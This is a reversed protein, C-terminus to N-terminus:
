ARWRGVPGPPAIAVHQLEHVYRLATRRTRETMGRSGVMGVLRAAKRQGNRNRRQRPRARGPRTAQPPGGRNGAVARRAGSLRPAVRHTVGVCRDSQQYPWMDVLRGHAIEFGAPAWGTSYSLRVSGACGRWPVPLPFGQRGPAVDLSASYEWTVRGTSSAPM